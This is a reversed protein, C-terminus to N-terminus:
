GAAYAARLSAVDAPTLDTPAGPEWGPREVSGYMGKQEAHGAGVAHLLEHLVVSDRMAPDAWIFPAYVVIMTRGRVGTLGLVGPPLRDIAVYTVPLGAEVEGMFAAPSMPEPAQMLQFGVAANIKDIAAAVIACKNATMDEDVVCRVVRGADVRSHFGFAPPPPAVRPVHVCAASLLLAVVAFRTLRVFRVFRRITSM